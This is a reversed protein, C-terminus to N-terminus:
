KSTRSRRMAVLSSAIVATIILAGGLLATLSPREGFVLLVWVPNLVPEMIATLMAQVATIKKIGYSYVFSALGIQILGMYIVPLVEPATLEPPYLFFFPIGAITCIIHALLMADAPNDDKLMRLFVSSAGFVIGSFVAITDGLIAGSGLGDRLFLVLGTFVLAMAGWQEWHPREKILFWGLLAAWVPASYQLMIANAATTTRNAAIFSIMTLAYCIAGLWLPLSMKIRQSPKNIQQSPKAGRGGPPFILRMALLFLAALLSRSSAIVMPHWGVMKIFMGSTSWLFATLLVAGQGKLQEKKLHDMSAMKFMKRPNHLAPAKSLRYIFM